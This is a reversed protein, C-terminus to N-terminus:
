PIQVGRFEFGEKIVGDVRQATVRLIAANEAATRIHCGATIGLRVALDGVPFISETCIRIGISEHKPQIRVPAFVRVKVAIAAVPQLKVHGLGLAADAKDRRIILFLEPDPIASFDTDRLRIAPFHYSGAPVNIVVMQFDPIAKVM